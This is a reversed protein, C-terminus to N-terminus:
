SWAANGAFTSTGIPYIRCFGGVDTQCTGTPDASFQISPIITGGALTQFSGSIHIVTKVATSTAAIVQATAVQIFSEQAAGIAAAAVSTALAHLAVSTFTATGAGLLGFATTHTTAGTTLQAVLDFRYTTAAAAAFTDRAAAFMANLSTNNPLVFAASQYTYQEKNNLEYPDKVQIIKQSGPVFDIIRTIQDHHGM